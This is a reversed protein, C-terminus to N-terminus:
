KPLETIGDYALEPFVKVTEPHARVSSILCPSASLLTLVLTLGMGELM